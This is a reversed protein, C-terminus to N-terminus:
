EKMLPPLAHSFTRRRTCTPRMKNACYCQLRDVTRCVNLISEVNKSSSLKPRLGIQSLVLASAATRIAKTENKPARQHLFRRLLDGLRYGTLIMRRDAIRSASRVYGTSEFDTKALETVQSRQFDQRTRLTTAENRLRTLNSSSTIVVDWFRHLDMPQEAQTM